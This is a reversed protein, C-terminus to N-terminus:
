RSEQYGAAVALKREFEPGLMAMANTFERESTAKVLAGRSSQSVRIGASNFLSELKDANVISGESVENWVARARSELETMQDRFSSQISRRLQEARASDLLEQQKANTLKAQILGICASYLPDNRLEARNNTTADSTQRLLTVCTMQLEDFDNVSEVIDLVRDAIQATAAAQTAALSTISGTANTDTGSVQNLGSQITKFYAEASASEAEAKDATECLSKKAEHVAEGSSKATECEVETPAAATAEARKTTATDAATVSAKRAADLIEIAKSSIGGTSAATRTTLAIAQARQVGTLQEVALTAIMHRQDRASQVIFETQGIAGNMFRECTRYMSERLINVTQSREITSGNESITSSLRAAVDKSLPTGGESLSAEAALSAALASFIDPPPEACIRLRFEEDSATKIASPNSIVSRQKADMTAIVAVNAPLENQRYISNWKASCGSILLSSSVACLVILRRM